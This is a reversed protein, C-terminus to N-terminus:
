RHRDPRFWVLIGKRKIKRVRHVPIMTDKGEREIVMFSGEIRTIEAYKIEILRNLIRDYYFITYDEPNERPDWKIKNLLDITRKM